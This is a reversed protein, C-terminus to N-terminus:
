GRAYLDRSAQHTHVVFAFSAIFAAPGLGQGVAFLRCTICGTPKKAPSEHIAGVVADRNAPQGKDPQEIM